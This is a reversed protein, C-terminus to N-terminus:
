QLRYIVAVQFRWSDGATGDKNARRGWLVEGGVDVLRYPTHILNLRFDQLRDIASAALANADEVSATSYSVGSKLDARWVHTYGIVGGQTRLPTLEGTSTLVADLNQGIFGEIYRAVGEGIMFQAQVADQGVTKVTFTTNLGWGLETVNEVDQGGDFRLQRLLGGVQVHGRSAEYRVFAPIDPVNARATGSLGSPIAFQPSPSEVAVAWRWHPAIAQHWRVMAQRVFLEGEPGEFDLTLPRASIDMFTTWTQGGLLHGFEGFGHRLRFANGSGFFDGEVFARLPQTAADSRLDLNLRTERAHITTLGSEAAAASGDAPISNTRFEFADQIPGFDQIVDVKVYGGISLSVDTGPIRIQEGARAATTWCLVAILAALARQKVVDAGSV